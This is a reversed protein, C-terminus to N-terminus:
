PISRGAESQQYKYMAAWVDECAHHYANDHIANKFNSYDISSALEAMLEAFRATSIFARFKYDHGPLSIVEADPLLAQLHEKNRARVNLTDVAEKSAVVSIFGKTTFIWMSAMREKNAAM